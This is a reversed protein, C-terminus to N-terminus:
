NGSLVAEVRALPMDMVAVRKQGTTTFVAAITSDIHQIFNRPRTSMLWELPKSNSSPVGELGATIRM